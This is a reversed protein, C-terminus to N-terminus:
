LKHFYNTLLFRRGIRTYKKYIENKKFRYVYNAVIRRKKAHEITNKNMTNKLSSKITIHYVLCLGSPFDEIKQTVCPSLFPIGM